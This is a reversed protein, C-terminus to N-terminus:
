TIMFLDHIRQPDGAVASAAAHIWCNGLYGQTADDATIGDKGFLSYTEADFVDSIRLWESEQEMYSQDDSEDVPRYDKWFLADPFSFTPDKWNGTNQKLM